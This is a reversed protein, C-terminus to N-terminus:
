FVDLFGAFLDIPPIIGSETTGWTRLDLYSCLAASFLLDDHILDGTAAHRTNPPVGWRMVRGPRDLVFSQCHQVELWFHAQLDKLRQDGSGLREGQDGAG